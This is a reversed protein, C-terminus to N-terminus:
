QLVTAVGSVNHVTIQNDFMQAFHADHDIVFKQSAESLQTIVNFARLKGDEDLGALPEDFVRFDIHKGTIGTILKGIALFCALDIRQTAGESAAELSLAGKEKIVRLTIKPRTGKQTDTWAKIEIQECRLGLNLAIASVYDQLLKTITQMRTFRISKFGKAWYVLRQYETLAQRHLDSKVKIDKQLSEYQETKLTVTTKLTALQTDNELKTLEITFTEIEKTFANKKQELEAIDSLLGKIEQEISDFAKFLDALTSDSSQLETDLVAKQDLLDAEKAKVTEIQMVLEEMLAFLEKKQIVKQIDDFHRRFTLIEQQAEAQLSAETEVSAAAEEMKDSLLLLQQQEQELEQELTTLQKVKETYTKLLQEKEKKGLSQGCAPCLKVQQIGSVSPVQSKHVALAGEHQDFFRKAHIYEKKCVDFLQQAALLTENNAVEEQLLTLAAEIERCLERLEAATKESYELLIPLRSHTDEVGKLKTQYTGKKIQIETLDTQLLKQMQRLESTEVHLQKQALLNVQKKEEVTQLETRVQTDSCTGLETELREKEKTLTDKRETLWQFRETRQATLMEIEEQLENKKKELDTLAIEYDEIKDKKKKAFQAAEKSASEWREGKALTDILEARGGPTLKSFTNFKKGFFGILSFLDETLGIKELIANTGDDSNHFTKLQGDPETITVYKLTKSWVRTFVYVGDAFTFTAAVRAEKKGLHVVEAAPIGRITNGTVCWYIAEFLGSKGAENSSESTDIKGKVLTASDQTVNWVVGVGFALFNSIEIKTLIM